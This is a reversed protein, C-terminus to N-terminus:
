LKFRAVTCFVFNVRSIKSMNLNVNRCLCRLASLLVELADHFDSCLKEAPAVFLPLLTANSVSLQHTVTSLLLNAKDHALFLSEFWDGVEDTLLRFSQQM